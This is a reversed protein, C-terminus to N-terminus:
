LSGSSYALNMINIVCCNKLNLSSNLLNIERVADNVMRKGIVATIIKVHEDESSNWFTSFLPLKNLHSSVDSGDTIVVSATTSSLIQLIELFAKENQIMITLMCKEEQEVEDDPLRSILKHYLESSDSSDIIQQKVSPSSYSKCITSLLRIHVNRHEEPGIIFFCIETKKGDAANFDIGNPYVVAGVVFDTLNKLRCHPIALGNEFGTSCIKEREALASYIDESSFDKLIDSKIALEAIEKLVAQKDTAQDLNIAICDANLANKLKM